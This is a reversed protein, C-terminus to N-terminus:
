QSVIFNELFTKEDMLKRNSYTSIAEDINKSFIIALQTNTLKDILKFPYYGSEVTSNDLKNWFRVGVNNREFTINNNKEYLYMLISLITQDQRHNNRSSGEPMIITKDLSYKYWDNLIEFGAKSQYDFGVLNASVSRLNNKHEFETLGLKNVTYPHNLEISEITKEGNSVPSYIGQSKVINYINGIETNGFRNASDMWIIIKDKNTQNNAENFIIIPKFAYSCYLGYYNNLNVHEPYLSYDFHKLEFNYKKQMDLIITNNTENLGLDYVILKQAEFNTVFNEIFTILTKFYSDNAGTIIISDM